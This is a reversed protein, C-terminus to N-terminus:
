MSEINSKIEFEELISEDYLNKFWVFQYNAYFM